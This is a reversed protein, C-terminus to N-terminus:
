NVRHIYPPGSTGVDLFGAVCCSLVTTNHFDCCLLNQKSNHQPNKPSVVQFLLTTNYVYGCCLPFPRLVVSTKNNNKNKNHQLKQAWLVVSTSILIIVM